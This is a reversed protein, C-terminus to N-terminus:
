EPPVAPSGSTRESSNRLSREWKTLAAPLEALQKCWPVEMLSDMQDFVFSEGIPDFRIPLQRWTEPGHEDHQLEVLQQADDTMHLLLFDYLADSAAEKHEWQFGTLLNSDITQTQNEVWRLYKRFGPTSANCYARVAKACSRFPSDWKGDFTKPNMAKMDITRVDGHGRAM